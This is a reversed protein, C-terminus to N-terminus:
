APELISLIKILNISVIEPTGVSRQNIRIENMSLVGPNQVKNM